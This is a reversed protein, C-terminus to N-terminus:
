LWARTAGRCACCRGAQRTVCRTTHKAICALCHCQKFKLARGLQLIHHCAHLWMHARSNHRNAQSSNMNPAHQYQATHQCSQHSYLVSTSLRSHSNRGTGLQQDLTLLLSVCHICSCLSMGSAAVCHMNPKCFICVGEHYSNNHLATARVFLRSMNVCQRYCQSQVSAAQFASTVCHCGEIGLQWM